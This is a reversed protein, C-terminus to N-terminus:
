LKEVDTNLVGGPLLWNLLAFGFIYLFLALVIYFMREKANAVQSANDRATLYRFGEWAFMLVIVGGVGVAFFRVVNVFTTLVLQAGEGKVQQAMAREAGLLAIATSFLSVKSILIAARSRVLKLSSQLKM